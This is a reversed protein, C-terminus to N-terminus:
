QFKVMWCFMLSVTESPCLDPDLHDYCNLLGMRSTEMGCARLTM